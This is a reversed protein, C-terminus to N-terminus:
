YNFVRIREVESEISARLLFYERAANLVKQVLDTRDEARAAWYQKELHRLAPSSESIWRLTNEYDNKSRKITLEREAEQLEDLVLSRDNSASRSGDELLKIRGLTFGIGSSRDGLFGVTSLDQINGKGVAGARPQEPFFREFNQPKSEVLLEAGVSRAYAPRDRRKEDVGVRETSLGEVRLTREALIRYLQEARMLESRDEGSIGARGQLDKAVESIGLLNEARVIAQNRRAFFGREALVAETDAAEIARLLEGDRLARTSPTFSVAASLGIRNMEGGSSTRGSFFAPFLEFEGFGSEYAKRLYQAKKRAIDGAIPSKRGLSKGLASWLQEQLLNGEPLARVSSEWKEYDENRRDYERKMSRMVRLDEPNTAVSERYLYEATLQERQMEVELFREAAELAVIELNGRALQVEPPEGRRFIKRFLARIPKDAISSLGISIFQHKAASGAQLMGSLVLQKDGRRILELALEAERFRAQYLAPEVFPILDIEKEPTQSFKATWGAVGKQRERRISTVAKDESAIDIEKLMDEAFAAKLSDETRIFESQLKAVERRVREYEQRLKQKSLVSLSGGITATRNGDLLPFGPAKSDVSQNAEALQLEGNAIPRRSIVPVVLEISRTDRRCGLQTDESLLAQLETFERTLGRENLQQSMEELSRLRHTLQQRVGQNAISVIEADSLKEVKRNELARVGWRQLVLRALELEKAATSIEDLSEWKTTTDSSIIADRLKILREPAEQSTALALAVERVGQDRLASLAYISKLLATRQDAEKRIPGKYFEVGLVGLPGRGISIPELQVNARAPLIKKWWPRKHTATLTASLESELTTISELIEVNLSPTSSPEISSSRKRVEAELRTIIPLLKEDCGKFVSLLTKASAIEIQLDEGNSWDRSNLGELERGVRHQVLGRERSYAARQPGNGPLPISISVAPGLGSAGKTELRGRVPFLDVEPKLSLVRREADALRRLTEERREFETM